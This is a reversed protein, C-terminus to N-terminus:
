KRQEVTEETKAEEQPEEIKLAQLTANKSEDVAKEVQDSEDSSKLHLKAHVKEGLAITGAPQQMIITKAATADGFLMRPTDSQSQIPRSSPLTTLHKQNGPKMGMAGM